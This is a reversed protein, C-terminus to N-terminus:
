ADIALYTHANRTLIDEETPNAINQSSYKQTTYYITKKTKTKNHLLLNPQLIGNYTGHYTFSLIM